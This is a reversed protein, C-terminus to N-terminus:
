QFSIYHSHAILYIFSYAISLMAICLGGSQSSLQSVNRGVRLNVFNSVKRRSTALKPLRLCQWPISFGSPIKRREADHLGQEPSGQFGGFMMASRYRSIQVPPPTQMDKIPVSGLRESLRHSIDLDAVAGFTAVQVSFIDVFFSQPSCIFVVRPSIKDPHKWTFTKGTM